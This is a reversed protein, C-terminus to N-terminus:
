KEGEQLEVVVYGSNYEYHYHCAIIHELETLANHFATANTFTYTKTLKM